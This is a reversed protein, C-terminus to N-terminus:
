EYITIFTSYITDSTNGARDKLYIKFNVDNENEAPFPPFYKSLIPADMTIEITGQISPNKTGPSLNPVTYSFTALSDAMIGRNDVVWLNPGPASGEVAGLDGDGDQFHIVIKVSDASGQTVRSPGISVLSIEPREDFVPGVGSCSSLLLGSLVIFILNTGM